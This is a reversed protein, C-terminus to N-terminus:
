EPDVWSSDQTWTIGDFTYKNVAWDEPVNTVNEHLTANTSNLCDIYFNPVLPDGLTSLPDGVTIRNEAMFVEKDDAFLHTSLNTVNDTITKM